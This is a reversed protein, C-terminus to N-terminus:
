TLMAICILIVAVALATVPPLLIGFAALIALVLAVVILVTNVTPSVYPRAM